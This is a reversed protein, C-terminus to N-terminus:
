ESTLISQLKQTLEVAESGLHTLYGGDNQTILGKNHLRQAADVTEAPASHQHVKLGEQSSSSQFLSLLNLEAIQDQSFPM